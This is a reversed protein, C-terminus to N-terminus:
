LRGDSTGKEGPKEFEESQAPEEPGAPEGAEEQVPGAEGDEDGNAPKGPGVSEHAIGLGMPRPWSVVKPRYIELNDLLRRTRERRDDETPDASLDRLLNCVYTVVIRDATGFESHAKAAYCLKTPDHGDATDRRLDPIVFLTRPESWPGEPRLATRTQVLDSPSGRSSGAAQYPFSYVARLHQGDPERAVSMETAGDSMLIRARDAALGRIWKGEDDLTELDDKLNEDFRRLAATSLRTLFRPRGIAGRRLHGFFFVSGGERWVAGAPFATADRALPRVAIQWDRPHAAPNSIRALDVGVTEFPMSNEAKPVVRVLVVYLAEEFVFGGFPWWYLDQEGTRFVARPRGEADQGWAYEIEFLGDKRCRSRAVSNHIFTSGRRTTADPVGVFTDGFLWLTPYMEVAPIGRRGALPALSVSYVADAGLWGQALPFRPLCPPPAPLDSSVGEVWGSPGLGLRACGVLLLMTWGALGVALRRRKVSMSASMSASVPTSM